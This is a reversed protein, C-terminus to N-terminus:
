QMAFSTFYINEVQVGDLVGNLASKLEAKLSTKGQDSLLDRYTKRTLIGIVADRAKIEEPNSGGEGGAQVNGSVELVLNVKLYRSEERDGLNVLFEELKWQTLGYKVFVAVAAGLCIIVIIAILAISTKGTDNRAATM